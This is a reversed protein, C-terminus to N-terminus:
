GPSPVTETVSSGCSSAGTALLNDFYQRNADVRDEDFIRFPTLYGNENFFAVQEPTLTKAAAPNAPQFSLDRDLKQLEAQQEEFTTM